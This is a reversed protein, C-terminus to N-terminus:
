SPISNILADLAYKKILFVEYKQSKGAIANNRFIYLVSSLPIDLDVSCESYSNYEGMYEGTYYDLQVIKIGRLMEATQQRNRKEVVSKYKRPRGPKIKLNDPKYKYSM